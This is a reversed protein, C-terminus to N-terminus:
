RQQLQPYVRDALMAMQARPLTGSLAYGFPGEIWYFTEIGNVRTFKFAARDTAPLADQAAPTKKATIPSTDTGPLTSVHLTVREGSATEYMFMARPQGAEGALLRGGVLSLGESTLVPAKLATGLRKSLWQILHEQEQAGVEVPHRKEPTYVAYAAMAERVFVPSIAPAGALQTATPRLTWGGAFGLALLLCAALSQMWPWQQRQQAPLVAQQMALPVPEDLMEKSLSQLDMRQLQWARVAEADAPNQRLWSSVADARTAPLQGDVWAHLEADTPPLENENHM